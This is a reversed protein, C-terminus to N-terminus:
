AGPLSLRGTELTGKECSTWRPFSLHKSTLDSDYGFTMVRSQSFYGTSPLYDRLWMKGNKATWTDVANGGLAHIACIDMKIQDVDAHQFLVTIGQFNPTIEWDRWLYQPDKKSKKHRKQALVLPISKLRSHHGKQPLESLSQVFEHYQAITTGGPIGTVRLARKSDVPM